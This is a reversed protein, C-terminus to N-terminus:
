MLLANKAGPGGGHRHMIIRIMIAFPSFSTTEGYIVHNVTDVRTTVDTWQQLTENWHMLRLNNQDNQSLGTSNYPIELQIVGTFNATTKVDIYTPTQTVLKFGHPPSPGTQTENVTTIGSSTVNSFTLSIGSTYTVTVNRGEQTSFDTWPKMLPYNDVNNACIVFPTNWIGSGDIETANPYWAQLDGWYNGGSPYGNDWTNPL